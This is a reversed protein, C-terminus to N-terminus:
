FNNFDHAIGGALVGPVATKGDQAARKGHAAARHYGSVGARRRPYRGPHGLIPAGSDAIYFERGDKAILLTHNALGVIQGTSIVKDVPNACPERTREDVIKFVEMLPRGVADTENWGTLDEAIPNMLVIRGDSDTTIVADGISRLTVALREKEAALQEAARREETIDRITGLICQEGGVELVAGCLSGLRLDGNKIRFWAEMDRVAGARLLEDLYRDRSEPNAWMNLDAVSSRGIAEERSYGTSIPLVKTSM